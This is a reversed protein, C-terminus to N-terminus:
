DKFFWIVAAVIITTTPDVILGTCLVATACLWKVGELYAEHREPKAKTEDDM